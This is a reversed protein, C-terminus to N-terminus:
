KVTKLTVATVSGDTTLITVEYDSGKKISNPKYHAGKYEITFSDFAQKEFNSKTVAVTHEKDEYLKNDSHAFLVITKLFKDDANHFIKKM